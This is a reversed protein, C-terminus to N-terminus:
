ITWSGRPKLLTRPMFYVAPMRGNTTSAPSREAFAQNVAAGGIIIPLSYGLRHFEEVCRRMERSTMVLLASLGIADPQIREVAKIITELPVQKGLDIIEFGQNKLISGVLNKGIDHVDGYVTALIIRGRNKSKTKELYPALVDLAEKMVEAAQLVFPLIMEGKEMKRGVEEMAPLLVTNLISDANEVKLMTEITRLGEGTASFSKEAFSSNYLSSGPLMM